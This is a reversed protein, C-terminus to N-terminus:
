FTKGFIYVILGALISPLFGFRTFLICALSAWLEVLFIPNEWEHNPKLILPACIASLVAIPVLSLARMLFPTLKKGSFFNISVLRISFTGLMMLGILIIIEM